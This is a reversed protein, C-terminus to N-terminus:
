REGEFQADRKAPDTKVPAQQLLWVIHRGVLMKGM